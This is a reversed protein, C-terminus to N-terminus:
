MQQLTQQIQVCDGAIASMENKITGMTSIGSNLFTKLKELVGPLETGKQGKLGNYVKQLVESLMNCENVIQNKVGEAAMFFEDLQQVKKESM